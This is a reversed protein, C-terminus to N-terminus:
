LSSLMHISFCAGSFCLLNGLCFLLGVPDLNVSQLVDAQPPLGLLVLLSAVFSFVSYIFLYPLSLLLCSRTTTTTPVPSLFIYFIFALKYESNQLRVTFALIVWNESACICFYIHILMHSFLCVYM